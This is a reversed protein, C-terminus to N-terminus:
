GIMLVLHVGFPPETSVELVGRFGGSSIWDLLAVTIIFDFAPSVYIAIHICWILFDTSWCLRRCRFSWRTIIMVQYKHLYLLTHLLLLFQLSPEFNYMHMTSYPKWHSVLWDGNSSQESRFPLTTSHVLLTIKLWQYWERLVQSICFLFNTDTIM